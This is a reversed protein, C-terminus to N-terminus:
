EERKDVIIIKGLIWFRLLFPNVKRYLFPWLFASCGGVWQSLTRISINCYISVKIIEKFTNAYTGFDVHLTFYDSLLLFLVLYPLTAISRVIQHYGCLHLPILSLIGVLSLIYLISPLTIISGWPLYGGYKKVRKGSYILYSVPKLM